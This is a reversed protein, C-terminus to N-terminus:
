LVPFKVTELKCTVHEEQDHPIPQKLDHPARTLTRMSGSGGKKERLDKPLNYQHLLELGDGEFKTFLIALQGDSTDATDTETVSCFYSDIPKGSGELAIECYGPRTRHADVVGQPDFAFMSIGDTGTTSDSRCVFVDHESPHRSSANLEAPATAEEPASSGGCALLALFAPGFALITRLRM